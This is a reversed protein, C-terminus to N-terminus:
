WTAIFNSHREGAIDSSTKVNFKSKLLDMSHIPGNCTLYGHKSKLLVKNVYDTQLPDLVESLAYNSIVLDYSDQHPFSEYAYSVANKVELEKVYKNQLLSAEPLDIMSYSKIDFQDCIIKAQGGYGGGIEVITYGTLDGFLSILNSLVSIYQVTTPSATAFGFDFVEPSGFKDNELFKKNELLQPNKENINKLHNQGLTLSCHELIMKYAKNSKFSRFFDQSEAANKCVDLYSEVIPRNVNWESM